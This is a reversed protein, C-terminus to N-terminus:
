DRQETVAELTTSEEAEPNRDESAPMRLQREKYLRQASLMSLVARWLEGITAHAVTAAIVHRNSFWNM